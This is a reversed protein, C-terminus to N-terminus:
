APRPPPSPWSRSAAPSRHNPSSTPPTCPTTPRSVPPWPRRDAGPWGSPPSRAAARSPSPRSTPADRPTPSRSAWRCWPPWSGPPACRPSGSPWHRRSPSSPVWPWPRCARHRGGRHDAGHAPVGPTPHPHRARARRHRAHGCGGPRRAAPDGPLQRVFPRFLVPGPGSRHGGVAAADSLHGRLRGVPRRVGGRPGRHVLGALRWGTRPVPQARGPGPRGPRHPQRHPHAGRVALRPPRGGRVAPQARRLRGPRHGPLARGGDTRARPAGLRRAELVVGAVLFPLLLWPTQKVAMALGLLTPGLWALPGRTWAFRDWRYVAGILLPVFLADTVGGVAYGIYVSFSGVVIALPRISRPLLVYTLVIGVAWAVVNVAVALETSWGVALFPVYLLFSLAPYSLSTVTHGNLLFTYGDPSVHFLAFAPAM